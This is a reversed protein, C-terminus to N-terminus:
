EPPLLVEVTIRWAGADDRQWVHVYYGSAEEASGVFRVYRGYTFGLDDSGSAGAGAPTWFVRRGTAALAKRADDAGLSRMEGFPDREVPQGM